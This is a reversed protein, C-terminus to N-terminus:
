DDNRKAERRAAKAANRDNLAILWPHSTVGLDIEAKVLMAVVEASTKGAIARRAEALQEPSHM